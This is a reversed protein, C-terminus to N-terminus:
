YNKKYFELYKDLLNGSTLRDFNEKSIIFSSYVSLPAKMIQKLQPIVGTAYSKVDEFNSFNGVYILQDNDFEKLQHKLNSGAYNGRNFQGIGFRSSSLTLTADAVHVVFYYTSSLANNFIGDTLFKVTESTSQPASNTTKIPIKEQVVAHRDPKVPVSIAAFNKVSDPFPENPHFDVLAIKRKKFDALHNMVYNIHNNVLPTILKDDPFTVIINNLAILLSDVNNTRGISIAKLYALQSSLIDPNKARFIGNIQHIVYHSEKKEYQSFIDNYKKNVEAELASETVSFSPDLITKAFPSNPFNKLIQERLQLSAAPKKEKYILYLSYYVSPLHSNQPFRELLINYVRTAENVEDLEQFYFNAIEYYADIIKKNSAEISESTLPISATYENVLLEINSVLSASNPVVPLTPGASTNNVATAQVTTIISRRWDNELKRNGWRRKFDSFGISIATPNSFYFSNNALQNISHYAQLLSQTKEATNNQFEPVVILNALAEIRALRLNKPLIAIAQLSDQMAILEYRDTLYKLNLNKKQILDYGPYAKPLINVASDYYAKARLYDKLYKFNIEAIKLYSLGKQHQNINSNQISLQYYNLAKQFEQDAAHSEAIQFYIQDHYDFNKDDKLLTLLQGYKDKTNNQLMKLKAQKLTANFHMEFPANSRQVKRYSIEADNYNQHKEHIQALIYTWRIKNHNKGTAKIANKLYSIAATDNKLYINMQAITAFSEALNRLKIKPLISVLTDLVNNAEDVRKLMMLSRAKWNLAELYNKQDNKYTEIIYSFYETANFYNGNFFNAKGLLIYADAIYKSLRKEHIVKQSKKIIEEMPKLNLGPTTQMNNIVPGLFVPLLEVYNHPYSENLELEHTSLLVKSNYIYNFRSTLNQM